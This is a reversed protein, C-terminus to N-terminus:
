SLIHLIGLMTTVVVAAKLLWFAHDILLRLVPVATTLVAAFTLACASSYVTLETRSAEPAPDAGSAAVFVLLAIAFMLCRALDRRPDPRRRRRATPLTRGATLRSVELNM